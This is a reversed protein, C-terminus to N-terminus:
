SKFLLSGRRNSRIDIRNSFGFGFSSRTERERSIMLDVCSLVLATVTSDLLGFFKFYKKLVNKRPDEIECSLLSSERELSELVAESINRDRQQASRDLDHSVFQLAYQCSRM